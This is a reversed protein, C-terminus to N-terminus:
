SEIHSGTENTRGSNRFQMPTMKYERKFSRMLVEPYAFGTRRAIAAINLNTTRLLRCVARVQHRRIFVAPSCDLHTKFKEELTRRSIGLMKVVDMVTTGSATNQHIFDIAMGLVPDKVASARSSLREVISIPRILIPETPAPKGAIMSRLLEGATRGVRTPDQDLNSLPVPALVSWMPDHEICVIAVDGPISLELEQCALILLYGVFSSWVTIAIPTQLQRLWVVLDEKDVGMTETASMSMPFCELTADHAEVFNRLQTEITNSYNCWPPPGIYGFNEHQKELFYSGTMNACVAEDSTVQPMNPANMLWSINVCPVNKELVEDILSESTARCIIGDGNWDEPLRVEGQADSKPVTFTWGEADDASGAIGQIVGRHWESDTKILLAIELRKNKSLPTEFRHHM